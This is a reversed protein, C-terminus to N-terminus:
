KSDEASESSDEMVEENDLESLDFELEEGCVPCVTGGKALLADDMYIVEGCSPCIVQYLSDEEDFDDEDDLFDEELASFEEYLEDFEESLEANQETLNSVEEALDELTDLLATWLKGEKKDTDLEMGEVLGKLYAVREIVTM